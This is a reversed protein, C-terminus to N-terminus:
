VNSRRASAFFTNKENELYALTMWGRIFHDIHGNKNNEYRIELVKRRLANAETMGEEAIAKELIEKREEKDLESRYEKLWLNEAM